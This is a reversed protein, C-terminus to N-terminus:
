FLSLNVGVVDFEVSLLYEFADGVHVADIDYM